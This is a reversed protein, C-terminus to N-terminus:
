VQSSILSVARMGCGELRLQELGRGCHLSGTPNKGLSGCCWGCPGSQRGPRDQEARGM